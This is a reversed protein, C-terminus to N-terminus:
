RGIEGPGTPIRKDPWRGGGHEPSFFYVDSESHRVGACPGLRIRKFSFTSNDGHCPGTAHGDYVQTLM